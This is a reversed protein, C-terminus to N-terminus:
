MVERTPTWSASDSSEDDSSDSEESQFHFVDAREVRWPIGVVIIIIVVVIIIIIIIIIIINIAFPSPDQEFRLYCPQLAWARVGEMKGHGARGAGM